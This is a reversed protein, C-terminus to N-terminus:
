EKFEMRLRSRFYLFYFAAYYIIMGFTANCFHNKVFGVIIVMLPVSFTIVIFLLSYINPTTVGSMKKIIDIHNRALFSSGYIMFAILTALWIVGGINPLHEVHINIFELFKSVCAAFWMVPGLLLGAASTPAWGKAYDDPRNMRLYNTYLYFYLLCMPGILFLKIGSKTRLISSM